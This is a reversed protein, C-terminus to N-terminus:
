QLDFYKLQSGMTQYSTKLPRKIGKAYLEIRFNAKKAFPKLETNVFDISGSLTKQGEAIDFSAQAYDRDDPNTQELHFIYKQTQMDKVRVYLSLKNKDLYKSNLIYDIGALRFGVKIKTDSQREATLYEGYFHELVSILKRQEENIKKIKKIEKEIAEIDSKKVWEQNEYTFAVNELSDIKSNMDSYQSLMMNYSQEMNNLSDMYVQLRFQALTKANKETRVEENLSMVENLLRSRNKSNRSLEDSLSNNKDREMNINKRLELVQEKYDSKSLSNEGRFFPKAILFGVTGLLAVIIVILLKTRKIEPFSIEYQGIRM